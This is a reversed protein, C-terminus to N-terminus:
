MVAICYSTEFVEGPALKMIGEKEELEGKFGCADARGLWPELCVFPAGTKSWLGFYMFGPAYVRVFPVGKVCMTVDQVSADQFIYAGDSFFDDTLNMRGNWLTLRNSKDAICCGSGPEELKYYTLHGETHFNLSVDSFKVGEGLRFAPHGGINFLLEKDDRNEVRWSVILVRGNLRHSIQLRFHFPYVSYTRENDQLAYIKELPNESEVPHFEMDRAFGHQSMPYEKGKYRYKGEYSAGVMPFLIPAHRNWYEPNADHLIERKKDKDYIRALEGGHANIQVLLNENELIQKEMYGVKRDESLGRRNIEM